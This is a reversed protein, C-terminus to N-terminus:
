VDGPRGPEMEVAVVREPAAALWSLNDPDDEAAFLKSLHGATVVLVGSAPVPPMAEFMSGTVRRVVILHNAPPEGQLLRTEELRRWPSDQAPQNSAPPPMRLWRNITARVAPSPARFGLAHLAFLGVWGHPVAQPTARIDMLVTSWAAASMKRP